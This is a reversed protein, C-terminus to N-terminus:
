SWVGGIGGWFKSTVERLGLVKIQDYGFQLPLAAPTHLSLYEIFVM